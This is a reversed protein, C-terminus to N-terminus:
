LLYEAFFIFYKRNPIIIDQHLVVMEVMQDVQVLLTVYIELVYDQVAVALAVTEATEWEMMILTELKEAM